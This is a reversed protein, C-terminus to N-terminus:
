RILMVTGARQILEGDYTRAKVVYTYVGEALESGSVDKGDWQFNLDGTQYLLKGWRDYIVLDIETVLRTYLNFFDNLGDGNPTFANPITLHIDETVVIEPLAYVSVCGMASTATLVAYYIGEATYQHVPDSETATNGDGFDWQWLVTNGLPDETSFEVIATPIETAYTSAAALVSPSPSIMVFVPVRESRCGEPSLTEVFYPTTVETPPALYSTGSMFPTTSTMTYYWFIQGGPMAHNAGLASGFGACVTDHVPYPAPPVPPRGIERELVTVCGFDSTVTLTVFYNGAVTYIHQPHQVQASDGDGFAWDWGAISGAGLTSLDTFQTTDGICAFSLSFDPVPNAHVHFNHIVTDFCGQSSGVILQVDYSGTDPFVHSVNQTTYTSGDSLTWSWSTISGSAVTSLDTLNEVAEDCIDEFDFHAMPQPHIVLSQSLTDRCGSLNSVVLVAQYVGPGGYQHSPDPLNSDYSDGFDWLWTMISDGASPTTSADTFQTPMTPCFQMASWNATPPEFVSITQSTTDRCGEATVVILQVTYSGQNAFVHQPNQLTSSGGDGFDWAWQSIGSYFTSNDTFQAPFGPCASAFSFAAMPPDVIFIEATDSYVGGCTSDTLIIYLTELGEVIGDDPASLLLSVSDENILFVVSDQLQAYDVGNQATGGLVYNVTYFTSSDGTREFNLMADTCGEVLYNNGSVTTTNVEVQTGTCRIGDAELFVGSDFVGDGGDAVVIKIHYTSCPQVWTKAELRVTQGDYEHTTNVLNQVYYATNTYVCNTGFGGFIGATGVNVTNISVPTTSNPITAINVNSLGPGTIFFGFVDNVGACVYEDYEESAFIYAISITDCMAVIDFELACADFTPDGSLATLDNDGFGGNDIGEFGSINPQTATTVQGSTLLVGSNINLNTSSGNFTGAGGNPCNMTINSIQVGPGTLTNVLASANQSAQVTLQARCLGVATLVFFLLLGIRHVFATQSFM